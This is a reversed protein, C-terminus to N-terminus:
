KYKYIHMCFFHRLYADYMMCIRIHRVAASQHMQHCLRLDTACYFISKESNLM